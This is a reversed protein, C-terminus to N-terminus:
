FPLDDIHRDRVRNNSYTLLRYIAALLIEDKDKHTQGGARALDTAIDCMMVALSELMKDRDAVTLKYSAIVRDGLRVKAELGAVVVRAAELRELAVELAVIEEVVNVRDGFLEDNGM